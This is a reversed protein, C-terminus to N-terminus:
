HTVASQRWVELSQMYLFHTKCPDDRTIVWTTALIQLQLQAVHQKLGFRESLSFKDTAEQQLHRHTWSNHSHSHPRVVRHSHSVFMNTGNTTYKTVHFTTMPPKFNGSSYVLETFRDVQETPFLLWQWMWTLGSDCASGLVTQLRSM